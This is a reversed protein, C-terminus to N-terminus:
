NVAISFVPHLRADFFSNVIIDDKELRLNQSYLPIIPKQGVFASLTSFTSPPSLICDCQSLRIINRLYYYITHGHFVFYNNAMERLESVLDQEDTVIVFAIEDHKLGKKEAYLKM